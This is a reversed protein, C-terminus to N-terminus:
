HCAHLSHRDYGQILCGSPKGSFVQGADMDVPKLSALETHVTHM